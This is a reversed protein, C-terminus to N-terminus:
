TALSNDQFEVIEAGSGVVIAARDMEPWVALEIDAYPLVSVACVRLSKGIQEPLNQADIGVAGDRGVIWKVIGGSPVIAGDPRKAEAIWEGESKLWARGAEEDIINALGGPFFDVVANGTRVVTPGGGFTRGAIWCKPTRDVVIAV